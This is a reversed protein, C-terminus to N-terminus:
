RDIRAASTSSSRGGLAARRADVVLADGAPRAGPARGPRRGRRGPGLAPQGRGRVGGDAIAVALGDGERTGDLLGEAVEPTDPAEPEVDLELVEHQQRDVG